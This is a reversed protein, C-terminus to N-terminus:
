ADCNSRSKIEQISNVEALECKKRQSTCQYCPSVGRLQFSYCHLVPIWGAKSSTGPLMAGGRGSEERQLGWNEPYSEQWESGCLVQYRCIAKKKKYFATPLRELCRHQFFAVHTATGAREM